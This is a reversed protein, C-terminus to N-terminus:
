VSPTALIANQLGSCLEQDPFRLIRYEFGRPSAGLVSELDAPSSGAYTLITRWRPRGNQTTTDFTGRRLRVLCAILSPRTLGCNPAKVVPGHPGTQLTLLM